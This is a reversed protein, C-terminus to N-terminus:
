KQPQPPLRSKVYIGSDIQTFKPNLKSIKACKEERDKESNFFEDTAFPAGRKPEHTSLWHDLNEEIPRDTYFYVQGKCAEYYYLHRKDGGPRTVIRDFDPNRVLGTYDPKGALVSSTIFSLLCLFILKKM